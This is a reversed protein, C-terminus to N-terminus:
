NFMWCFQPVNVALLIIAVVIYIIFLISKSVPEVLLNERKILYFLITIFNILISIIMAVKQENPTGGNAINLLKQIKNIINNDM